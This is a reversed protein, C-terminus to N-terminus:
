RIACCEIYHEPSLLLVARRHLEREWRPTINCRQATQESTLGVIYRSILVTQLSMPEVKVIARQIEDQCRIMKSIITSLQVEYEMMLEVLHPIRNCQAAHVSHIKTGTIICNINRTDSEIRQLELELLQQQQVFQRYRKLWAVKETYEM